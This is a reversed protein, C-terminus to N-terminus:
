RRAVREAAARPDRSEQVLRVAAVGSIRIPRTHPVDARLAGLTIVLTVKARRALGLIHGCLPGDPYYRVPEPGVFVGPLNARQEELRTAVDMPVDQAVRVPDFANTKGDEIAKELDATTVNLIEALSSLVSPNKALQEPVVSVVIQHRNTALVKGSRDQIVGRPPVRRILRLQNEISKEALEPGHAVQLYWLRAVIAALALLICGILVRARMVDRQRDPLDIVAM